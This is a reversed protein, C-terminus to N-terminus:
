IVFFRKSYELSKESKQLLFLSLNSCVVVSTDKPTELVTKVFSYSYLNVKQVGDMKYVKTMVNNQM